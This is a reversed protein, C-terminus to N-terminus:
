TRLSKGWAPQQGIGVLEVTKLMNKKKTFHKCYYHLQVKRGTATRHALLCEVFHMSSIKKHQRQTETKHQQMKDENFHWSAHLLLKLHIGDPGRTDWSTGFKDEQWADSLSLSTGWRYFCSVSKLKGRKNEEENGILLYPIKKEAWLFGFFHPIWVFRGRYM